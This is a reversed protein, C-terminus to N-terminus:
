NTGTPRNCEKDIKVNRKWVHPYLQIHYVYMYMYMYIYMYIYICIRICICLDRIAPLTGRSGHSSLPTDGPGYRQENIQVPKRGPDEVATNRRHPRGFVSKHQPGLWTFGGPHGKAGADVEGQLGKAKVQHEEQVLEKICMQAKAAIM